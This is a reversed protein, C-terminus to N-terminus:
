RILIPMFRRHRLEGGSSPVVIPGHEISSGDPLLAELWYTPTTGPRVEADEFRYAAGASRGVAAILVPTIRAASARNGDSSRWLHFGITGGEDGTNWSLEIAQGRPAGNFNLLMLATPSGIVSVASSGGGPNPGNKGDDGIYATNAITKVGSPLPSDIKVAFQISGSAGAPVSGLNFLCITGAPSGDPCSWAVSSAAAYFHTNAPVVETIVVGTAGRNGSNMYDLTYTIVDGPKLTVHPDTKLLKFQPAGGTVPTVAVGTNNQPTLDPGNAGDDGIMATNSITTVGASLPNNVRVAFRVSGGATAPVSGVVFTCLTGAPSGNACSWGPDSAAADFTTNAPVVETIVVGTAGRVGINAYNLTFTIIGAPAAQAGGDSKQIKLDPADAVPTTKTTSNNEPHPDPGNAGDDGISATNAISTVGAPLPRNVTVAFTLTGSAGSSLGGINFTCFTGAPSNDACSWGASSSAANFRSNAPVTETIIVGTASRTGKNAFTLTYVLTQGPQAQIGGDSKAITLDAATSVPTQSHAIPASLIPDSGHTGDDGITVTNAIVQVNGPLPDMVQVAFLLAGGAGANLTGVTYVCVTGAPSGAACSWGPTSGAARYIAGAPVTETIRVATAERSGRNGYTLTYVITSGPTAAAGGDFKTIFLAPALILPTGITASNGPTPDPGHTGDDGISATNYLLTVNAPISANVRIAFLVADGTRANLPWRYRFVCVTGAPDRDRCSWGPTSATAAFTTYAPVRETIVIGTALADGANYFSITYPVIADPRAVAGGATKSIRLDPTQTVWVADSKTASNDEPRPDAGHLGDDAVFATNTIATVGPPVPNAMQVAVTFYANAQAALSFPPWTVVGGAVTPSDSARLFTVSSPLRDSVVVGTAVINGANTIALTYTFLTGQSVAVRGDDKSVQLDVFSVPVAAAAAANEASVIQTSSGAIATNTFTQTVWSNVAVVVTYGRVEGPLLLGAAWVLPNPGSSPLPTASSM